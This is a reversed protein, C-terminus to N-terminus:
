NMKYEIVLYEEKFIATVMDRKGLSMIKYIIFPRAEKWMSGLM